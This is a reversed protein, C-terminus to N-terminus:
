LKEEIRSGNKGGDNQDELHPITPKGVLFARAVGRSLVLQCYGTTYSSCKPPPAFDSKWIKKLTFYKGPLFKLKQYEGFCIKTTELLSFYFCCCFCFLVFCFCFCFCFSPYFFTMEENGNKSKGRVNWIEWRGIKLKREKIRWKEMDRKDWYILLFKGIFLM